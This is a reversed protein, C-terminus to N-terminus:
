QSTVILSHREVNDLHSFFLKNIHFIIKRFSILGKSLLDLVLIMYVQSLIFLIMDNLILRLM